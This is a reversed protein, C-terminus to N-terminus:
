LLRKDIKVRSSPINTKGQIIEGWVRTLIPVKVQEIPDRDVHLSLVVKAFNARMTFSINTNM